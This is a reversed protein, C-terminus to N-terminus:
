CLWKEAFPLNAWAGLDGATNPPMYRLQAASAKIPRWLAADRGDTLDEWDDIVQQPPTYDAQLTAIARFVSLIREVHDNAPDNGLGLWCNVANLPNYTEPRLYSEDPQTDLWQRMFETCNDRVATLTYPTLFRGPMPSIGTVPDFEDIPEGFENNFDVQPRQTHPTSYLHLWRAAMIRAQDGDSTGTRLGKRTGWRKLGRGTRRVHKMTPSAPM